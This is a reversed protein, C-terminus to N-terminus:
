PSAAKPGLSCEGSGIGDRVDHGPVRAHRGAPARVMAFADEWLDVGVHPAIRWALWRVQDDGSAFANSSPAAMRQAGPNGLVVFRTPQPPSGDVRGRRAPRRQRDRRASPEAGAAEDDDFPDARLWHDRPGRPASGADLVANSCGSSGGVAKPGDVDDDMDEAPGGVCLASVITCAGDLLEDDVDGALATALEGATACAYGLYENMVANPCGEVLLWRKVDPRDGVLPVLREVAEIKGWGDAARAVEWLADVPDAVLNRIAVSCYLTFEDHRAFARILDLDEPGGCIGLLAIGLKAPGPSASRHSAM